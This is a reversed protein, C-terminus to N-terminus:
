ALSDPAAPTELGPCAEVPIRWSSPFAEYDGRSSTTPPRPCGSVAPSPNHPIKHAWLVSSPPSGCPWPLQPPWPVWQLSPTFLRVYRISSVHRDESISCGHGRFVDSYSFQSPFVLLPCEEGDRMKQRHLRQILREFTQPLIGASAHITHGICSVRRFGPAINLLEM